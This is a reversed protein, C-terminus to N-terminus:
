PNRHKQYAAIFPHYDAYDTHAIVKGDQIRLNVVLPTSAIALSKGDQLAITWDLTVVFVAYHSSFIHQKVHAKMDRIGAFARRLHDLTHARGLTPAGSFLQEATPDHWSAQPHMLSELVKWDRAIYALFYPEAISKTTQTTAVYIQEEPLLVSKQDTSAQAWPMVLLLATALWKKHPNFPM